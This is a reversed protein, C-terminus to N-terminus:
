FSFNLQRLKKRRTDCAACKGEECLLQKWEERFFKIGHEILSKINILYSSLENIVSPYIIKEALLYKEFNIFSASCGPLESLNQEGNISLGISQVNMFDWPSLDKYPVNAAVELYHAFSLSTFNTGLMLVFSNEKKGLWHFISNLGLPSQPSDFEKISSTAAGWIAFSHTASSTRLVDPLKRFVESLVGVKSSTIEKNFIQNEDTSTKYCYTFTPFIISGHLSIIKQLSHIVEPVSVDPFASVIKKFGTHVIVHSNEKLGIQKLYGYFNKREM